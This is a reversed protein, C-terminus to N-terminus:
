NRLKDRVKKSVYHLGRFQLSIRLDKLEPIFSPGSNPIISDIGHLVDAEAAGDFM